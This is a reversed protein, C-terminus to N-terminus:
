IRLVAAFAPQLGDLKRLLLQAERQTRAFVCCTSGSGSMFVPRDCLCSMQSMLDAMDPNQTSASTTLRNFASHVLQRVSGTQLAEIVPQSRRHERVPELGAFVRPTENGRAPRAAVVYLCGRIPIAQVKEGRGRCVAARTQELFFNIDSGLTAAISHLAKHPLNLGWLGNLAMLTTAANGSGGALGAQAPIRKNITVRVGCSVGAAQRVAHAARCILNTDDLPFAKRIETPTHAALQLMVQGSNTREFHMVDCLSTKLMVTELEHYGDPRKGQVELFVNIKSPSRFTVESTLKM